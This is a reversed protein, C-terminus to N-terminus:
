IEGRLKLYTLYDVDTAAALSRALVGQGSEPGAVLSIADAASGSGHGLLLIRDGPHAADLAAVLELLPQAAGVNATEPFARAPRWQDDRLELARAAASALRPHPANMAVFRYEALERGLVRLLGATAGGMAATYADAAYDPVQVDRRREDDARTFDLGPDEAVFSSVAEVSAVAGNEQLVFAAAGAGMLADSGARASGSAVESAVVLAVGGAAHQPAPSGAVALASIFAETGARDSTTCEVTFPSSGLRLAHALLGAQVKHRYPLSTSALALVHVPPAAIDAASAVALTLADEDLGAVRKGKLGPIAPGWARSLEEASLRHVPFRCGYAAIGLVM